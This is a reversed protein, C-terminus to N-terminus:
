EHSSLMKFLALFALLFVIVFSVGDFALFGVVVKLTELLGSVDNGMQNIANDISDNAVELLADSIKWTIFAGFITGVIKAVKNDM